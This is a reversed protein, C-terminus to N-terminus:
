ATPPRYRYGFERVTEILQPQRPNDQLKKRLYGIYVRVNEPGCEREGWCQDLLRDPAMVMGANKVLAGLLRFEQPSLDLREGRHYVLHKRFDLSLAADHYEERPSAADRKRLAAQVRAVLELTGFPKGLYDDAGGHLGKVVQQEQRLATLMIVPAESVERIRELMQWGDMYPMLVDLVVLEPRWSYFAKLGERGDCAVATQYGEAELVERVLLRVPEEDDVVLVRTAM